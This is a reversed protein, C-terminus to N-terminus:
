RINFRSDFYRAYCDVVGFINKIYRLYRNHQKKLTSNYVRNDIGEDGAKVKVKHEINPVNVGSITLWLFYIAFM